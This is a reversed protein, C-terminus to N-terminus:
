PTPRGPVDEGRGRGSQGAPQLEQPPSRGASLVIDNVLYYGDPLRALLETVLREGLRGKRAAQIRGIIKRLPRHVVLLVVLISALAVVSAPLELGGGLRLVVGLAAVAALVVAALATWRWYERAELHEGGRRLVQL